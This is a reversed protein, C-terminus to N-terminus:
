WKNTRLSCPLCARLVHVHYGSRSNSISSHLLCPFRSTPMNSVLGLRVMGTLDLITLYTSVGQKQRQLALYLKVLALVNGILKRLVEMNCLEISQIQVLM